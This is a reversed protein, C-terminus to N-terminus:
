FTWINLANKKLVLNFVGFIKLLVSKVTRLMKPPCEKRYATLPVSRDPPVRRLRSRGARGYQLEIDELQLESDISITWLARPIVHDASTSELSRCHQNGEPSTPISLAVRTTERTVHAKLESLEEWRLVYIGIIVIDNMMTHYIAVIYTIIHM